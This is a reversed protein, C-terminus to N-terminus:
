IYKENFGSPTLIEPLEIKLSLFHKDGSVLVDINYSIAANIIPQDKLDNIEVSGVRPAPVLEYRLKAFLEDLVAIKTQFRRNAVLYCEEIIHDCLILEHNECAFNLVIDPISGKKLIASIIVNTDIMIRM